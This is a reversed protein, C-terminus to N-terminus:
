ISCKRMKLCFYIHLIIWSVSKWLIQRPKYNMPWMTDNHRFSLTVSLLLFSTWSNRQLACSHEYWNHIFYLSLGGQWQWRHYFWWVEFWLALPSIAWHPVYSLYQQTLNCHCTLMSILHMIISKNITNIYKPLTWKDTVMYVQSSLISILQLTLTVKRGM